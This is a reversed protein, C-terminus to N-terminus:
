PLEFGALQRARLAVPHVVQDDQQGPAHGDVHVAARSEVLDHLPTFAVHGAQKRVGAEGVRGAVGDGLLPRDGQEDVAVMKRRHDALTMFDRRDEHVRHEIARPEEGRAVQVVLLHGRQAPEGGSQGVLQVVGRRRDLPAGRPEGFGQLVGVLRRARQAGGPQRVGLEGRHIGNACRAEGRADLADPRGDLLGLV